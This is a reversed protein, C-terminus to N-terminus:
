SREMPIQGNQFFNTAKRSGTYWFPLNKVYKSSGPINTRSRKVPGHTKWKSNKTCLKYAKMVESNMAVESLGSGRFLTTLGLVFLIGAECQNVCIHKLSLNMSFCGYFSKRDRSRNNKTISTFGKFSEWGEKLWGM